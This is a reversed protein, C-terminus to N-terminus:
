QLKIIRVNDSYNNTAIKFIDGKELEYLVSDREIQLDFIGHQYYGDCDGNFGYNCHVYEITDERIFSPNAM